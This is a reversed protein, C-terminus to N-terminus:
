TYASIIFFRSKPPSEEEDASDVPSFVESIDLTKSIIDPLKEGNIGAIAPDPISFAKSVTRVM